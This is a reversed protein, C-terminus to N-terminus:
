WLEPTPAYSPTVTHGIRRIPGGTAEKRSRFVELMAQANEHRPNLELVRALNQRAEAWDGAESQAYALRYWDDASMEHRHETASMLATAADTWRKEQGYAIGLTWHAASLEDPTTRSSQCVSRLLPAALNPQHKELELWAIRLRAEVHQPEVSLIRHYTEIAAQPDDLHEALKARLLLATVHKPDNQLAADLRQAAPMPQHHEIYLEALEVNAEVDDPNQDVAEELHALALQPRDLSLLLRALERHLHPDNPAEELAEDFYVVAQPLNGADEAQRAKEALRHSKEPCKGVLSRFWTCGSISVCVLLLGLGFRLGARRCCWAAKADQRSSGFPQASRVQRM